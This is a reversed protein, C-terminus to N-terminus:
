RKTAVVLMTAGNPTSRLLRWDLFALESFIKFMSRTLRHGVYAPRTFLHARFRVTDARMGSDELLSCLQASTLRRVHEPPDTHFLQFGDDSPRLRGHLLINECWELSLRNACPTTLVLRGGPRLVRSFETLTQRADVVHELVEINLVLDVSGSPIFDMQEAKGLYFSMDTYRAQAKQVAIPSFDVGSIQAQPFHSRLLEAYRGQGCGVDLIAEPHFTTALTALTQSVSKYRCYEYVDTFGAMYGSSYLHDYHTSDPISSM